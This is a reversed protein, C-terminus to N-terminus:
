LLKLLFFLCCIRVIRKSKDAKRKKILQENIMIKDTEFPFHAIKDQCDNKCKVSGYEMEAINRWFQPFRDMQAKMQYCLGECDDKAKFYGKLATEINSVCQDYEGM